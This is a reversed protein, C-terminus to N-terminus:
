IRFFFALYGGDASVNVDTNYSNGLILVVLKIPSTTKEYKNPPCVIFDYEKSAYTEM